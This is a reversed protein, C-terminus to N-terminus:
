GRWDSLPGAYGTVRANEADLELRALTDSEVCGAAQCSSSAQTPYSLFLAARFGPRVEYSTSLASMGTLARAIELASSETLVRPAERLRADYGIDADPTWRESQSVTDVPVLGGPPHQRQVLVRHGAGDEAAFRLERLERTGLMFPVKGYSASALVSRPHERLFAALGSDRDVAIRVADEISLHSTAPNGRPPTGWPSPPILAPRLWPGEAAGSPVVDFGPATARLTLEFKPGAVRSPCPLGQEFEARIGIETSVAYGSDTQSFNAVTGGAAVPSSPIAGGVVTSGFFCWPATGDLVIVQDGIHEPLLTFLVVQVVGLTAKSVRLQAFEEKDDGLLFDVYYTPHRMGESDLHVGGNRILIRLSDTEPAFPIILSPFLLPARGRVEYDFTVDSGEAVDFAAPAPGACGALLVAASLLAARSLRWM